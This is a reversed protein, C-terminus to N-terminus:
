AGQGARAVDEIILQMRASRRDPRITGAVHLAARGPALLAEGIPGDAQGFAIADVRGGHAGTLTCRVHDIGVIKAGVVRADAIAFRPERNGAGYPGARALAAAFDGNVAGPALSGDIHLPRGIDLGAVQSALKAVLFRQLNEVQDRAVTLGAAMAHGGGSRLLGAAHAAAVAAGLNAGVVSRGSGRGTGKEDIAVVLAPRGYHDKLRSAVIGIVGPHWGEGVVMVLPGPHETYRRAAQAMAEEQVLAEIARREANLRDLERAIENAEDPDTTTLLRAGLNARGVRGGANIRPGLIYGLHYTSPPGNQRAVDALAALGINRRRAMVALGKAVFARNVGTLPVVDCVTGLAVLDLWELLEPEDREAYWGAERLARNTAIVLLFAVGVAALQGYTRDEDTRNPNIVALAPPLAPEALHHDVVIVELGIEAATALPKHALTGCDVTVVVRTGDAAIRRLAPANPGYGEKIRDPIYFALQGGVAVCFRKLLAASTAGDVDYDGFVTIPEGAMIARALRGAAVDMDKFRSPDPLDGRLTPNMHDAATELDVGRAALVRGLVEPISLRQSLALSLRDDAVSPSWRRGTASRTVGLVAPAADLSVGAPM